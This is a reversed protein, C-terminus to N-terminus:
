ICERSREEPPSFCLPREAKMREAKQQEYLKSLVSEKTEADATKSAEVAPDPIQLNNIIGDFSNDNQEVTDEVSRLAARKPDAEPYQEPHLIIEVREAVQPDDFVVGNLWEECKHWGGMTMTQGYEGFFRLNDDTSELVDITYGASEMAAILQDKDAPTDHMPEAYEDHWDSM